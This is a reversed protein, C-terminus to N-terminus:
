APARPAPPSLQRTSGAPAEPTLTSAARPARKQVLAVAALIIVAGVASEMGFREGAFVIGLLVAIVPNVYAYSTAVAPRTNALLYSYATFGVLSGFIALYALAFTSRASPTGTGEGLAASVAVMAAGGCLMQAATRMLGKPLPLRQSAISGLGWGM